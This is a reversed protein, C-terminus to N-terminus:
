SSVPLADFNGDLTVLARVIWATRGQLTRVRLWDGAASRGTATLCEDAAVGGVTAYIAGAGSRLNAGGSVTAVATPERGGPLDAGARWDPNHDRGCDYTLRTVTGSAVAVTYLEFNGDRNSSFVIQTGDPSWAPEKDDKPNATLNRLQAGNNDMVYIEYNGDRNTEFAIWGGDPSWAPAANWIPADTRTLQRPARSTLDLVDIEYNGDRFSRYAIEDGNPSWVPERDDDSDATLDLVRGGDAEMVFIDAWRLSGRVSSFVVRRGDPSWDAKDDEGSSHTLNTESGAHLNYLDWDGGRRSSFAISRGDPSWDPSGSGEAGSSGSDTLQVLAGGSSNMAYIEYRGSRNSEFVIAPPPDTTQRLDPATLPQVLAILPQPASFVAACVALLGAVSRQYNRSHM